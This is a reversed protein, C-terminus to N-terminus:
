LIYTHIHIYEYTETSKKYIHAHIPRDIFIYTYVKIKVSDHENIKHIINMKQNKPPINSSLPHILIYEHTYIYMYVFVNM